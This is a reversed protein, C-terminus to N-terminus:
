RRETPTPSLVDETIVFRFRRGKLHEWTIEKRLLINGHQDKVVIVDERLHKLEGLEESSHPLLTTVLDEPDDGAFVSATQGTENVWTVSAGPDCAVVATGVITGVVLLRILELNGTRWFRWLTRTM